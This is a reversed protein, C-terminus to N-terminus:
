LGMLILGTHWLHLKPKPIQKQSLWNEDPQTLNTQNQQNLVEEFLEKEFVLNEAKVLKNINDLMSSRSFNKNVIILPVPSANHETDTMTQDNQLYEGVFEINGHDSTIVMSHGETEVIDVLRGIQHDLFEMSRICALIDGTHGVMDPNAYNVVIYDYKGIGNEIIYDTVEKAKMEPKEAHSAVKNSDIVVWEEGAFKKNQGGNLFYTVHNYKETESIHLQNFGLKSITEALTNQVPQNKFIPYYGDFNENSDFDALDASLLKTKEIGYDNMGLITLNLDLEKNFQCLMNTLQKFRDTRFNLLWVTDSENIFEFITPTITEDFIGQPYFVEKTYKGLTKYIDDFGTKTENLLKSVDNGKFKETVDTPLYDQQQLVTKKSLEVFKEFATDSYKHLFNVYFEQSQYDNYFSKPLLDILGLLVREWNNDRDMSYFRGGLSGLSIRDKYKAIKSEFKKEFYEWTSLLSKRDSDRGDSILHLVIKEAGAKGAADIAGAWHRLDSHITGSSFLGILHVTKDASNQEFRKKLFKKPDFLQNPATETNLDFNKEASNTIQYSLQPVLKLGGINMHGVESNGVLGDEQGVYQGDANVTTWYYDKLLRKLNPLHAKSLTNNESELTLGLGDLICLIKTIKKTMSVYKLIIIKLQLVM